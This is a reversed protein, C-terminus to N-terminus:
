DQLVVAANSDAVLVARRLVSSHDNCVLQRRGAQYIDFVQFAGDNVAVILGNNVTIPIKVSLQDQM